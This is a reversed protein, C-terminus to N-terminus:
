NGNNKLKKQNGIITKSAKKMLSKTSNLKDCGFKNLNMSIYGDIRLRFKLLRNLM